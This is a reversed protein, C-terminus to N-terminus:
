TRGLWAPPTVSYVIGRVGAVWATTIPEPVEPVRSDLTYDVASVTMGASSDIHVFLHRRRAEPPERLKRRNDDKNAEAEVASAVQNADVMGGVPAIAYIRGPAGDPVEHSQGMQCGLRLLAKLPEALAENRWMRGADFSYCGADELACLAPEAERLVRRVDTATAEGSENLVSAPMDITWYRRLSPAERDLREVRAWTKTVAENGHRTIELPERSADPFVLDFDRTSTAGGGPDCPTARAGLVYAVSAAARREFDDM